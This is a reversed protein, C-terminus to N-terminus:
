FKPHIFNNKLTSISEAGKFVGVANLNLLILKQLEMLEFHNKNFKLSFIGTERVM